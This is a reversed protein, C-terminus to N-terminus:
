RLAEQIKSQYTKALCIDVITVIWLPALILFGVLFPTKYYDPVDKSVGLFIILYSFLGVFPLVGFYLLKKYFSNTLLKIGFIIFAMGFFMLFFGQMIFIFFSSYLGVLINAIGLITFLIRKKNKNEKM